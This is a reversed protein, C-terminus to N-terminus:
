TRRMRVAVAILAIGIVGMVAKQGTTPMTLALVVTLIGAFLLAPVWISRDAWV